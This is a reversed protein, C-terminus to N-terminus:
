NKAVIRQLYKGASFAAKLQEKEIVVEIKVVLISRGKLLTLPSIVHFSLILGARYFTSLSPPAKERLASM